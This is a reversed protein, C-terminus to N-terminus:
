LYILVSPIHLILIDIHLLIEFLLFCLPKGQFYGIYNMDCIEINVNLPHGNFGYFVSRSILLLKDHCTQCGRVM